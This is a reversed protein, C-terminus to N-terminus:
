IKLDLHKGKSSNNRKKKQREGQGEKKPADERVKKQEVAKTEKVMRTQKHLNERIAEGVIQKDTQQQDQVTRQIREVEGARPVLVQLDVSKLTM